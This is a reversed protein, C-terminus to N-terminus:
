FRIGFCFPNERNNFRWELEDLYADLHKASAKHDTNFVFYCAWGSPPAEQADVGRREGLM